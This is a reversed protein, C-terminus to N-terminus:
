VPDRVRQRSTLAPVGDWLWALCDYFDEGSRGAFQDKRVEVAIPDELHYMEWIERSELQVRSTRIYRGRVFRQLAEPIDSGSTLCQALYLGDEIAMGAGQAYSQLTPHAADGILVTHGSAWHRVPKRDAIPWRRSLDMLAILGRMAPHTNRYTTLIEQKYAEPELRAAFNPTKFVAVINFIGTDRLPYHVIHLSPGAWLVVQNRRVGEPVESM